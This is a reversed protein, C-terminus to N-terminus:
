RINGISQRVAAQKALLFKEKATLPPKKELIANVEEDNLDKGYSWKFGKLEGKEALKSLYDMVYNMYKPVPKKNEKGKVQCINKTDANYALTVHPGGEPDRLSLLTTAAHDTGCHGMAQAEDKSVNKELDKWYYGDSYREIVKGVNPNILKGSATLNSHWVSAQTLADELGEFKKDRIFKIKDSSSLVGEEEQRLPSNIWDIIISFDNENDKLFDLFKSQNILKLLSDENEAQTNIEPHNYKVFDKLALLGLEIGFDYELGKLFSEVSADFNIDFSEEGQSEMQESAAAVINNFTGFDRLDIQGQNLQIWDLILIIDSERSRMYNFLEEQNITSLVGKINAGNMEGIGKERLYENTLSDAFFLGRKKNLSSLYEAIKESFGIKTIKQANEQLIGALDQMRNEFMESIVRKRM